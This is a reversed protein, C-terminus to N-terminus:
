SAGGTTEEARNDIELEPTAAPDITPTEAEALKMQVPPPLPLDILGLPEIGVQKALRHVGNDISYIAEVLKAWTEPSRAKFKKTPSIKLSYEVLEVAEPDDFGAIEFVAKRRIITLYENRRDAAM